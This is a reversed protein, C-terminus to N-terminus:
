NTKKEIIKELTKINNLIREKNPNGKQLALKLFKLAPKYHKNMMLINAINNCLSPTFYKEKALKKYLEYADNYKKLKILSDAMGEMSENKKYNLEYSKKFYDFAKQYDKTFNIYVSAATMYMRGDDKKESLSKEAIKLYKLQRDELSNNKKEDIYHHIPILTQMINLKLKKISNDVIEHVKGSYIINKNNKFLRIIPNKVYGSYDKSESYIKKDDIQTWNAVTNKKTYNRQIFYFADIEKNKEIYEKIKEIDRKAIKEDADLILIYKGTAKSISFNRAVSFDDDWIFDYIKDTFKKAIEKTKDKSGTDVIIIEDVINKVSMICEELYNEEDKVIMCLSIDTM